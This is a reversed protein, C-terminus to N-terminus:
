RNKWNPGAAKWRSFTIARAVIAKFGDGARSRWIVRGSADRMAAHTAPSIGAISVAVADLPLNLTVDGGASLDVIREARINSMGIQSEVRYRGTGLIFVPM